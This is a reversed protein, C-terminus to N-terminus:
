KQEPECAAAAFEELSSFTAAPAAQAAKVAGIGGKYRDLWIATIGLENCPKIDHYLSQAVHLWKQRRVGMLREAAAFNVHSPKYAGVDEATVVYSFPAELKAFTPAFLDRDINSIVGLKYRQRLRRLAAVSDPFPEWQAVSAALFGRNVAELQVGLQAVVKESARQLVERYARYPGSEIESEAEAYAALIEADRIGSLRDRVAYRFAALIGKEWDVLTGYCDFTIVDFQLFNTM